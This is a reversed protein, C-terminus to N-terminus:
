LKTRCAETNITFDGLKTGDLRTYVAHISRGVAFISTFHSNECWINRISNISSSATAANLEGSVKYQYTFTKESYETKVLDTVEDVKTPKSNEAVKAFDSDIRKEFDRCVAPNVAVRASDNRNKVSWVGEVTVGLDFMTKFDGINCWRYTMMDTWVPGFGGDQSKLEYIYRFTAPGTEIKILTTMADIPKPLPIESAAKKLFDELGTTGVELDTLKKVSTPDSSLQATVTAQHLEVSKEIFRGGAALAIGLIVLLFAGFKEPVRSQQYETSKKFILVLSVVPIYYYIWRGSTGYADISRASAIFGGFTGLLFTLTYISLVLFFLYGSNLALQLPLTLLSSLGIMFFHFGALAFFPARKLKFSPRFMLTAAWGGAFLVVWSLAFNAGEGLRLLQYALTEM